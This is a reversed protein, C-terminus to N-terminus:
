GDYLIESPSCLSEVSPKYGSGSERVAAQSGPTARTGSQCFRHVTQKFVNMPLVNTSSVYSERNESHRKSFQAIQLPVVRSRAATAVFNVGSNFLLEGLGWVATCSMESRMANWELMTSSTPPSINRQSPDKQQTRVDDHHEDRQFAHALHRSAFAGIAAKMM